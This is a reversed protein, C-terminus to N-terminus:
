DPKCASVMTKASCDKEVNQLPTVLAAFAPTLEINLYRDAREYDSLLPTPSTLPAGQDSAQNNIIQARVWIGGGVIVIILLVGTLYIWLRSSKPQPTVWAPAEQREEQPPPIPVEPPPQDLWPPQATM